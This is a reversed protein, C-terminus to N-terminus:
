IILTEPWERNKCILCQVLPHTDSSCCWPLEQPPLFREQRMEPAYPMMVTVGQDAHEGEREGQAMIPKMSEVFEARIRFAWAVQKESGTLGTAAASTRAQQVEQERKCALCPHQRMWALKCQRETEQGFLEVTKTHNCTHIVSYKAM